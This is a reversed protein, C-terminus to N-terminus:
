GKALTPLLRIQGRFIAKQLADPMDVIWGMANPTDHAFMKYLEDRIREVSVHMLLEATEDSRVARETQPSMNFGLTVTFRLARMVRLADERIREMPEGVFDITQEKIASRGNHPDLVVGDEDIAIANMTFDRRALDDFITGPTVFEPRRHDATPGDSRCMVFDATTKGFEPHSRPFHARITLFQPTEVFIEYGDEVLQTRMQDFSDVECAFDQDKSVRGMMEDRVAGGVRYMKM